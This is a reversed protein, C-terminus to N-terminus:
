RAKRAIPVGKYPGSSKKHSVIKGLKRDIKVYQGTKPNKVQVVRAKNSFKKMLANTFLNDEQEDEGLSNTYFDKGMKKRRKNRKTKMDLLGYIAIVVADAINDNDVDLDLNDILWQRVHQKAKGKEAKKMNIGVVSRIHSSGKLYWDKANKMESVGILIGNFVSLVHMTNMNRQYHAKEIIVECKDDIMKGFFRAIEGHREQEDNSSFNAFSFDFTVTKETTTAICYGTKTAIDIGVIKSNKKITTGLIAELQAIKMKKM